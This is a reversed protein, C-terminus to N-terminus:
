FHLVNFQYNAEAQPDNLHPTYNSTKKKKKKQLESSTKKKKAFHDILFKHHDILLIEAMLIPISIFCRMVM